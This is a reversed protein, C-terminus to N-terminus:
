KNKNLLERVQDITLPKDQQSLAKQSKGQVLFPRTGRFESVEASAGAERASHVDGYGPTPYRKNLNAAAASPVSAEQRQYRSSSTAFQKTRFDGTVFQKEARRDQVYFSKTRARKDITVGGATFQKNQVNSSLSMDPKLLRDLLKRDQEQAAATAIGIALFAFCFPARM